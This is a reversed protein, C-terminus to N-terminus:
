HLALASHLYPGGVRAFDPLDYYLEGLGGEFKYAARDYIDM